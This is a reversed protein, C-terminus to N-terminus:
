LGTMKSNIADARDEIRRLISKIDILLLLIQCLMEEKQETM